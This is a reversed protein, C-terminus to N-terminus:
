RFRHPTQGRQQPTEAAASDRRADQDHCRRIDASRSSDAPTPQRRLWRQAEKNKAVTNLGKKNAIEYNKLVLHGQVVRDKLPTQLHATLMNLAARPSSGHDGYFLYLLQRIGEEPIEDLLQHLSKRLKSVDDKASIGDMDTHVVQILYPIPSVNIAKFWGIAQGLTPESVGKEWNQVTKRAVELELAMYEQSKGSIDRAERLAEAIKM